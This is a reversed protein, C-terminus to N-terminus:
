ILTSIWFLLATLGAFLLCLLPNMYLNSKLEKFEKMTLLKGGKSLVFDTEQDVTIYHPDDKKKKETYQYRNSSGELTVDFTTAELSGKMFASVLTTEGMASPIGKVQKSGIWLLFRFVGILSAAFFYVAAMMTAKAM